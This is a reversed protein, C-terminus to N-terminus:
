ETATDVKKPPRGRPRRPRVAKDKTQKKASADEVSEAEVNLEAQVPTETTEITPAAETPVDEVVEAAVVKAESTIVTTEPANDEAVTVAITEEPVIEPTPEPTAEVVPEALAPVEQAKEAEIHAQKAQVLAQEAALKALRRRERPDNAVRKESEAKPPTLDLVPAPEAEPEAKSIKVDRTVPKKEATEAPQQTEVLSASYQAVFKQLARNFTPILGFQEILVACDDGYVHRILSGITYQGLTPV